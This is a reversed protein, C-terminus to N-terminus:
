HDRDRTVELRDKLVEGRLLEVEIELEMEVEVGDLEVIVYQGTTGDAPESKRTSGATKPTKGNHATRMLELARQVSRFNQFLKKHNGVIDFYGEEQKVATRYFSAFLENHHAQPVEEVFEEWASPPGVVTFDWADDLGPTRVDAVTGERMEVLHNEEGIAVVFSGDYDDRGHLTMEPDEEVVAMYQEWWQESGLTADTM